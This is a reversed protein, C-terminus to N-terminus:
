PMRRPSLPAHASLPEAPRSKPARRAAVQRAGEMERAHRAAIVAAVIRGIPGAIPVPRRSHM